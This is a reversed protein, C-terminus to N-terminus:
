PTYTVFHSFPDSSVLASSYRSALVIVDLRWGPRKVEEKIISAGPLLYSCADELMDSRKNAIMLIASSSSLSTVLGNLNTVPLHEMSLHWRRTSASSCQLRDAVEMDTVVVKSSM